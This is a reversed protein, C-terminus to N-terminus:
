INEQNIIEGNWTCTKRLLETQIGNMLIHSRWRWVHFGIFQEMPFRPHYVDRREMLVAGGNITSLCSQKQLFMRKWRNRDEQEGFSVHVNRIKMYIFIYIWLFIYPRWDARDEGIEAVRKTKKKGPCSQGISSSVLLTLLHSLSAYRLFVTAISQSSGLLWDIFWCMNLNYPHVICTCTFMDLILIQIPVYTTFLM